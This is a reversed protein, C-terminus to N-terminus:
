VRELAGVDPATADRPAGSHDNEPALDPLARGLAASGAALRFDRRARDVFRPNGIRNAVFRMGGASRDLDGGGNRFLLNARAVNGAGARGDGWYTSIGEQGSFAVINNVLRINATSGNEDAGVIIGSRNGVITNNAVLIDRAVPYLQIGYGNQAGVIINNVISHGEGEVYLNHDLNDEGAGGNDFFSCGDIRIRRTTRESFFGQRASRTVQCTALTIDSADGSVYVNASSEGTAGTFTVGSFVLHKAGSAVELASEGTARIVPTAGSDPAVTIPAEATGAQTARVSEAYTGDTLVLTGGPRMQQLGYTITGWPADRTGAASDSGGPSVYRTGDHPATTGTGGPTNPTSTGSDGSGGCGSMVLVAVLAGLTSGSVRRM